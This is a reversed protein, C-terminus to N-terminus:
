FFEIKDLKITATGKNLLEVSEVENLNLDSVDLIGKMFDKESIFIGVNGGNKLNFQVKLNGINLFNDGDFKLYVKSIPPSITEFTMKIEGGTYLSTYQYDYPNIDNFLHPLDDVNQSTTQYILRDLWGYKYIPEAKHSRTWLGNYPSDPDDVQYWNYTGTDRNWQYGKTVLVKQSPSSFESPSYTSPKEYFSSYSNTEIFQVTDQINKENEKGFFDIEVPSISRDKVNRIIASVIMEDEEEKNIPFYERFLDQESILHTITKESSTTLEVELQDGLNEIQDYTKLYMDRIKVPYDFMYKVYEGPNIKQNGYPEVEDNFWNVYGNTTYSTVMGGVTSTLGQMYRPPLLQRNVNVWKDEIGLEPISIQHWTDQAYNSSWKLSNLSDYMKGSFYEQIYVAEENPEDYFNVYSSLFLSKEKSTGMVMNDGFLEFLQLTVPSEGTNRLRVFKLDDGKLDLKKYQDLLNKGTISYTSWNEDDKWKVDVEMKFPNDLDYNMKALKFYLYDLTSIGKDFQYTISEGPDFTTAAYEGMENSGLYSTNTNNQIIKYYTNDFLGNQYSQAYTNNSRIWKNYINQNPINIKLWKYQGMEYDWGKYDIVQVIESKIETYIQTSYIDPETYLTKYGSLNFYFNTLKKYPNSENVKGIKQIPEKENFTGFFDMEAITTSSNGENKITVYEVDKMEPISFYTNLMDWELLTYKIKQGDQKTFTLSIQSSSVNPDFSKFYAENINVPSDFRYTFEGKSDLQVQAYSYTTSIDNDFLYSLNSAGKSQIVHGSTLDFLGREFIGKTRSYIEPVYVWKNEINYEPISFQYWNYYGKEANWDLAYNSLITGAKRSSIDIRKKGSDLNPGDYFTPMYNDLTFEYRDKRVIIDPDNLLYVWGIKEGSEKELYYWTFRQQDANWTKAETAKYQGELSIKEKPATTNAWQYVNHEGKMNIYETIEQHKPPNFNALGYGFYRDKGKEGIDEAQEYLMHKLEDVTYEPYREKYLALLGSIAPTAQSTGTLMQYHEKDNCTETDKTKEVSTSLASCIDTGMASIDVKGVSSHKQRTIDKNIKSLIELRKWDTNAVSIVESYLAPININDNQELEEESLCILKEDEKHCSENGAAAVLLVDQEELKKISAKLTEDDDLEKFGMSMNVIDILNKPTEGKARLTQRHEENKKYVWELGNLLMSATGEGNEGLVSVNYLNVDPSVGRMGISNNQAAIIGAVHTGHGQLDEFEGEKGCTNIFLIKKTCDVGGEVSLDEHTQDIGTDLVAVGVGYGTEYMSTDLGMNLLHQENIEQKHTNDASVPYSCGFLFASLGVAYIVKKLIRVGGLHM